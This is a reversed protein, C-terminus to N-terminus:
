CSLRDERLPPMPALDAIIMFPVISQVTDPNGQDELVIAGDEGKNDKEGRQICFRRTVNYSVGHKSEVEGLSFPPVCRAMSLNM